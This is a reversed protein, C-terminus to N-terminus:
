SKAFVCKGKVINCRVEGVFEMGDYPSFNKKVLTKAKPDFLVMDADFGEQILGKNLGLLKAQNYSTLECLKQLSIIGSHVLGGYCISLYDDILEVGFSAEEFALDKKTVSKPAHASTLYDIDGAQLHKILKQRSQESKLPPKIKASTNFGRCLDENLLLHNISVEASLNAVEKKARKILTLSRDSSITQIVVTANTGFAVEIIKAVEKTEAMGPIGPLGLESSLYGENMVGEGSLSRDECRCMVPAKWLDSYEFVRRMINGSNHSHAYIAKAGRKLLISIDYMGEEDKKVGMASPIINVGTSSDFSFVFELVAESRIEPTSDPMLLLTGVGGKLASTSLYALNRHTLNDNLMRINLDICSPLLLLGSADIVEEKEKPELSGIAAIKGRECRVDGKKEGNADCITANKIVM